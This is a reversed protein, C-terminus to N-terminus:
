LSSMELQGCPTGMKCRHGVLWRTLIRIKIAVKPTPVGAAIQLFGESREFITANVKAIPFAQEQTCRNVMEAVPVELERRRRCLADKILVLSLWESPVKGLLFAKRIKAGFVFSECSPFPSLSGGPCGRSAELPRFLERRRAPQMLRRQAQVWVTLVGLRM